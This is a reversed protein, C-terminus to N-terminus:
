AREEYEFFDFDAERRTGAFDQCCMGIFAGTFNPTFGTTAEDSLISADHEQALERYSEGDCRYGFVLRDFDVQACLEIAGREPLRVPESLTDHPEPVPSHMWVRLHRGYKEDRSVYLYLFKSANYYAVLGAMQQFHQPDFELRTRATVRHAQVRRAVLAQDFHSGLSEAGYLRLHGPRAQLSFLSEVYPTRLWQFDIPLQPQDFDERLPSQPFPHAPLGPAAVRVAPEGGEGRVVRPWGDESWVMRAIGTERGLTCRGRGPLPRGCLYVLFTEGSPTDVWDAHGARQLLAEPFGRSTLIPGEPHVEYPGRLSRSRALTCAHGFGTGGEATLLYYYEGRRYLHPAETFGLRTGEFIIEREGILARREPCYEQLAIGAFRNRMPRHDWVMNVLYKKGDGDHFLSPDFGASNLFIRSSWPGDIKPATVLYNHMDRPAIGAQSTGGYRKVDTYVLYFSGDHYTLCPAWIGCSDGDGRMDLQDARSLPRQLLRWHVLDRSHHIQVGPYWEFTSTAIYYDEGVRVISPDPNFGRLIPNEIQIPPM